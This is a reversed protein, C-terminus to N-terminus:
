LLIINLKETDGLSYLEMVLACLLLYEFIYCLSIFNLSRIIAQDTGMLVYLSFLLQAPFKQRRWPTSYAIHSTFCNM